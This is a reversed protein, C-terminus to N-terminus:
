LPARRSVPDSSRFARADRQIMDAAKEGIMISPANTNGAIISPMIPADAERRWRGGRSMIGAGLAAIGVGLLLASSPEPVVSITASGPLMFGDNTGLSFTLRGRLMTVGVNPTFNVDAPNFAVPAGVMAIVPANVVGVNVMNNIYGTVSADCATINMGLGLASKICDGNLHITGKSPPGIAAFADSYVFISNLLAAGGNQIVLLDTVTISAFNAGINQTVTGTATFGMTTVAFGIINPKPNLDGPQNDTTTVNGVKIFFARAHHAAGAIALLAAITCATLRRLEPM